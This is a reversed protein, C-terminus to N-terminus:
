YKTQCFIMRDLLVIANLLGGTPFLGGIADERSAFVEERESAEECGLVM